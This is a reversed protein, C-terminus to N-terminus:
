NTTRYTAPMVVDRAIGLDQLHRQFDDMLWGKGGALVLPMPAGGRSRYRAYAEVLRRQNKRPEITGVSLWFSEAAVGDLVRPRVGSRDADSFRSCPYIVRVRDEPFHPFTRLYHDRSSGSIAVIWDAALSSRFVGEFCGVRNAETTWSPEVAFGMDYFTYILRASRLQVPCWFNNSHVIDPLGLEAEVRESTWFARATERTLHRPGYRVERGPYPNRLPMLADFYFDGFGPFLSYRHQPATDVLSRAMAHAFYGCGAKSAGTQSIDFGIHM